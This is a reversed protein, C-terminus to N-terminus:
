KLMVRTSARAPGIRVEFLAEGKADSPLPLKRPGSAGLPNFELSSQSLGNSSALTRAGQTLKAEYSIGEERWVNDFLAGWLLNGEQQWASVELRGADGVNKRPGESKPIPLGTPKCSAAFSDSELRLFAPAVDSESGHFLAVLYDEGLKALLIRELSGPTFYQGSYAEEGALLISAGNTRGWGLKRVRAELELQLADRTAFDSGSISFLRVSIFGKAARKQFRSGVRTYGALKCAFRGEMLLPVLCEGQPEIVPWLNTLVEDRRVELNDNVGGPASIVLAYNRQGLAFTTALGRAGSQLSLDMSKGQLNAGNITTLGFDRPPMFTAGLRARLFELGREDLRWLALSPANLNKEGALLALGSAPPMPAPALRSAMGESELWYYEGVRSTEASRGNAARLALDLEPALAHGPAALAWLACALSAILLMPLLLRQM